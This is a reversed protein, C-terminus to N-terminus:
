GDALRKGRGKAARQSVTGGGKGAESRMGHERGQDMCDSKISDFRVCKWGRSPAGPLM